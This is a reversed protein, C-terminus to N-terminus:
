AETGLRHGHPRTALSGTKKLLLKLNLKKKQLLLLRQNEISAVFESKKLFCQLGFM